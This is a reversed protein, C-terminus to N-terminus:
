SNESWKWHLGYEQQWALLSLFSFLVSAWEWRGALLAYAAVPLDPQWSAARHSDLNCYTKKFNALHTGTPEAPCSVQAAGKGKSSFPHSGPMGLIGTLIQAPCRRVQGAM